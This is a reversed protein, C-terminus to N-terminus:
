PQSKQGSEAQNINETKCKGLPVRGVTEAEVWYKFRRDSVAHNVTYIMGKDAYFSFCSYAYTNLYAYRLTVEHVGQPLYSVIPYESVWSWKFLSQGDLSSIQVREDLGAFFIHNHESITKIIAYEEPHDVDVSDPIYVYPDSNLPRSACGSLLLIMIIAAIYKM